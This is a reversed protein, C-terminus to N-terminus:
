SGALEAAAESIERFLPAIEDRDVGAFAVRLYRGQISITGIGRDLLALRLAEADLPACDFSVFYGANCPLPKLPSTEPMEGIVKQMEQYRSKLDEFLAQKQAPYDPNELLKALLNQGLTNANSISARIGGTLKKEFAQYHRDELGKAAMTVFGVRMGWLFDEKTAGDVKAALIREHASALRAFLSENLVDDAYFLGFYADDCIALIDTGADAEEVLIEILREASDRTPAYGAPNNPFNLLIVLKGQDRNRQLVEAFGGTNLTMHETFFPFTTIKAQNRGELILRYNGWFMDPMVVYDGPDVFLEALQFIGNTLGATVVPKSHPTGALSPNKAAIEKAWLDRVKPVGATPSYAVAEAPTFRDLLEQAAPLMVPAGGAYAMGVTANYRDARQKAEGSQAVIGKPFYSRLGYESLLRAIVTGELQANLERALQNM